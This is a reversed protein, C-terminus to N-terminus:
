ILSLQHTHKLYTDLKHHFVSIESFNYIIRKYYKEMNLIEETTPPYNKLLILIGEKFGYEDLIKKVFFISYNYMINYMNEKNNIDNINKPIYNKYKPLEKMRQVSYCCIGEEIFISGYTSNRRSYERNIGSCSDVISKIYMHCIEHLVVGRVTSGVSAKKAYSSYKHINNSIVILDLSTFCKGLENTDDTYELIDVVEFDIDYNIKLNFTKEFDKIIEKNNNKVYDIIGNITVQSFTLYPIITFLLLLVLKLM